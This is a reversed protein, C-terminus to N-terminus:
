LSLSLFLSQGPFSEESVSFSWGLLAPELASLSLSLYLSSGPSASVDDDPCGTYRLVRGHVVLTEWLNQLFSHLHDVMGM